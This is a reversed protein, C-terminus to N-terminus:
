LGLLPVRKEAKHLWDLYGTFDAVSNGDPDDSFEVLSGLGDGTQLDSVPIGFKEAIACVSDRNMRDAVRRRKYLMEDEQDQIPGTQQFAYHRNKSEPASNDVARIHRKIKGDPGFWVVENLFQHRSNPNEFQLTSRFSIAECDLARTAIAVEQFAHLGADTGERPAHEILTLKPQDTIEHLRWSIYRDKPSAADNQSLIGESKKTTYHTAFRMYQLANSARVDDAFAIEVQEQEESSFEGCYFLLKRNLFWSKAFPGFSMALMAAQPALFDPNGNRIVRCELLRKFLAADNLKQEPERVLDEYVGSGAPDTPFLLSRDHWPYPGSFALRSLCSAGFVQTAPRLSSSLVSFSLYSLDSLPEPQGDNRIDPGEM